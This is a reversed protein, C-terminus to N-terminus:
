KHVEFGIGINSYPNLDSALIWWDSYSSSLYTKNLNNNTFKDSFKHGTLKRIEPDLDMIVRSYDGQDFMFLKGDTDYPILFIGFKGQFLLKFGFYNKTYHNILNLFENIKEDKKDITDRNLKYYDLTTIYYSMLNNDKTCGDKMKIKEVIDKIFEEMMFKLSYKYAYTLYM